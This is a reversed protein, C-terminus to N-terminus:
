LRRGNPVIKTVPKWNLFDYFGAWCHVPSGCSGCYFEGPCEEVRREQTARYITSCLACSFYVVIQADNSM